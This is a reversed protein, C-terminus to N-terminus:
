ESEKHEEGYFSDRGPYYMEKEAKERSILFYDVVSESCATGEGDLLFVEISAISRRQQAL